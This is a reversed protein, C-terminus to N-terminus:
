IWEQYFGASGPDLLQACIFALSRWIHPLVPARKAAKSEECTVALRNFIASLVHWLPRSISNQRQWGTRVQQVRSQVYTVREPLNYARQPYGAPSWRLTALVKFLAQFNSSGQSPRLQCCSCWITANLGAATFNSTVLVGGAQGASYSFSPFLDFMGFPNWLAKEAWGSLWSLCGSFGGSSCGSSCGKLRGTNHRQSAVHPLCWPATTYAAFAGFLQLPCVSCPPPGLLVFTFIVFVSWQIVGFRKLTQRHMKIPEVYGFNCMNCASVLANM